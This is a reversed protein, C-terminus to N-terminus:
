QASTGALILYCTVWYDSHVQALLVWHDSHLPAPFYCTVWYDSHVQTPLYCTGSANRWCLWFVRAHVTRTVRVRVRVCVHVCM